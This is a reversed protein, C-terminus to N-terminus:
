SEGVARRDASAALAGHWHDAIATAGALNPARPTGAGAVRDNRHLREIEPSTPKIM